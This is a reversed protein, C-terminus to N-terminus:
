PGDPAGEETRAFVVTTIHSVGAAALALAAMHLSAGTTMVDDVLMVRQGRLAVAQLPDVAFAGQLNRLRESRPLTRQAPTDRIRTLLDYRTKLPSLQRALLLSQNFGRQALRQPSLPMPLLWDAQALADDVGPASHMLSALRSAWGPQSQYKFQAVLDAWPWQYSVATLASQWPPAKLLCAGCREISNPIQLACSRCRHVPQAFAAICSECVPRAPWAKCIACQSPLWSGLRDAALGPPPAHLPAASFRSFRRALMFEIYQWSKEM